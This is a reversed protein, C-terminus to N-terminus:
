KREKGDGRGENEGNNFCWQDVVNERMKGMASVGNILLM